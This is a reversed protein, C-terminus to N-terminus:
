LESAAVSPCGCPQCEFEASLGVVVVPREDEVSGLVWRRRDGLGEIPHAAEGHVVPEPVVKQSRRSSDADLRLRDGM